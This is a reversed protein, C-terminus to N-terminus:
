SARLWAAPDQEAWGPFPTAMPYDGAASALVQGGPAVLLARSGTTGVDIGLLAERSLEAM